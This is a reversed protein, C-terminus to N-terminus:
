DQRRLRTLREVERVLVEVDKRDIDLTEGYRSVAADIDDALIEFGPSPRDARHIPPYPHRSVWRHFLAGLAVLLVANLGVPVLAYHYGAATVTPGGIVAMLATSGGPPHLARMAAMVVISLAVALGCAVVPNAVHHAVLTGVLASLVHGGVIAWPRALPSSPLAFLIVSSAALPIMLLPTRGDSGVVAATLFGTLSIGLWAGCAATLWGRTTAGPLSSPVWERWRRGFM